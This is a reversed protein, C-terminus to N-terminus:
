VGNLFLAPPSSTPAQQRSSAFFTGELDHNMEMHRRLDLLYAQWIRISEDADKTPNRYSRQDHYRAEQIAESVDSTLACLALNYDDMQLHRPRPDSSQGAQILGERIVTRFSTSYRGAPEHWLLVRREEPKVARWIVDSAPFTFRMESWRLTPARGLILGLYADIRLFNAALSDDPTLWNQEEMVWREDAVNFTQDIERAGQFVSMHRLYAICMASCWVAWEFLEPPNPLHSAGSSVNGTIACATILGFAQLTQFSGLTMIRDASSSRTMDGLSRHMFSQFLNSQSENIDWQIADSVNKQQIWDLAPTATEMNLTPLHLLSWLGHFFTELDVQDMWLLLDSIGSEQNSGPAPSDDLLYDPFLSADTASQCSKSLWQSEGGVGSLSGSGPTTILSEPTALLSSGMFDGPTAVLFSPSIYSGSPAQGPISLTTQPTAPTEVAPTNVLMPTGPGATAISSPTPMSQSSQTYNGLRSTIDCMSTIPHPTIVGLSPQDPQNQGLNSCFARRALATEQPHHNWSSRFNNNDQGNQEAETEVNDDYAEDVDDDALGEPQQLPLRGLFNQSTSPARVCRVGSVECASCPTESDCRIKRRRCTKCALLTRKPAEGPPANHALVHRHLIDRRAYAKNCMYCKHPRSEGHSRMHRNLHERRRFAKPCGKQRCHFNPSSSEDVEERTGVQPERPTTPPSFLVPPSDAGQVTM